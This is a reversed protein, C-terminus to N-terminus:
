STPATERPIVIVPDDCFRLVAYSAANGGYLM